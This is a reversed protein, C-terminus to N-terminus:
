TSSGPRHTLLSRVAAVDVKLENARHWADANAKMKDSDPRGFVKAGESFRPKDPEPTTHTVYWDNTDEAPKGEAGSKVWETRLANIWEVMKDRDADTVDPPTVFAKTVAPYRGVLVLDQDHQVACHLKALDFQNTTDSTGIWVIDSGDHRQVSLRRHNDLLQCWGDGSTFGLAPDRRSDVGPSEDEAGALAPPDPLDMWHTVGVEAMGDADGGYLSHASGARYVVVGNDDSTATTVQGHVVVLFDRLSEDYEFTEILQWKDM